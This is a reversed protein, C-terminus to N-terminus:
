FVSWLSWLCLKQNMLGMTPGMFKCKWCAGWYHQHQQDSRVVAGSSSKVSQRLFLGLDSHKYEGINSYKFFFFYKPYRYWKQPFSTLDWLLNETTSCMTSVCIQSQRFKTKILWLRKSVNLRSTYSFSCPLQTLIQGEQCPWWGTVVIHSCYHFCLGRLVLVPRYFWTWCHQGTLNGQGMLVYEWM